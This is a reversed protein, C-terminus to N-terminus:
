RFCPNKSIRLGLGLNLIQKKMTDAYMLAKVSGAFFYTFHCILFTRLVKKPKAPKINAHINTINRFDM